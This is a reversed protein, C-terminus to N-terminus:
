YTRLWVLGAFSQPKAFQMYRQEIYWQGPLVHHIPKWTTITMPEDPEGHQIQSVPPATLM